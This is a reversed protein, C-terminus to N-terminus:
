FSTHDQNESPHTLHGQHRDWDGPDVSPNEEVREPGTPHLQAHCTHPDWGWPSEQRADVTESWQCAPFSHRQLPPGHPDEPSEFVLAVVPWSLVLGGWRVFQHSRGLPCVQYSLAHGGPEPDRLAGWSRFGHRRCEGGGADPGLVQAPGLLGFSQGHSGTQDGNPDTELSSPHLRWQEDEVGHEQRPRRPPSRM